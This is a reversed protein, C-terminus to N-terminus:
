RTPARPNPRRTELKEREWAMANWAPARREMSGAMKREPKMKGIRAM